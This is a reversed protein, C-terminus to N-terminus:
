RALRTFVELISLNEHGAPLAPGAPRGGDRADHGGGRRPRRHPQARCRRVRPAQGPLLRADDADAALMRPRRARRAADPQRDGGARRAAGPRFAHREALYKSRCYPGLVEGPPVVQDERIPADQRLRTLISETSTHLVRRAGAQLAAELVHVAGHYNV